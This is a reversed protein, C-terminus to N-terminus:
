LGLRLYRRRTSGGSIHRWDGHICNAASIEATNAKDLDDAVAALDGNKYDSSARELDGGFTDNASRANSIDTEDQQFLTPNM